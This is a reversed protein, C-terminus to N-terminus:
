ILANPELDGRLYATLHKFLALSHLRTWCVSCTYIAPGKWHSPTSRHLKSVRAYAIPAIVITLKRLNNHLGVEGHNKGKELKWTFRLTQM